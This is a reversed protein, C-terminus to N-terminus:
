LKGACYNIQYFITKFADRNLDTRKKKIRISRNTIPMVPMQVNRAPLLANDAINM